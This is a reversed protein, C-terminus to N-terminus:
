ADTARAWRRYRGLDRGEEPRHRSAARNIWSKPVRFTTNSRGVPYPRQRKKDNRTLDPSIVSWHSGRDTSEFIRNGGLWAVHGDWPAFAIPAEWGFRYRALRNDFAESANQLYPAAIWVDKTIKNFRLRGWKGHRGLHLKSRDPRSGGMPRRWLVGLDLGQKSHRQSRRIQETRM